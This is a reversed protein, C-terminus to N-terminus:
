PEQPSNDPEDNEQEDSSDDDSAGESADELTDYGPAESENLSAPEEGEQGTLIESSEGGELPLDGTGPDNGEIVPSEEEVDLIEVDAVIDGEQLRIARVGQTDRGLVSIADMRMKIILGIKSLIMLEQKSNVAAIAVAPGNKETIRINRVGKGGRATIRYEDPLTRKAHGRETITLLTIDEKLIVMGIVRDSGTVRIGRVGRTGRGCQRISSLKFRIAQGMRTGIMIDQDDSALNVAVLHDGEDLNIANVGTSRIRSFVSLKMKNITGKETAFIISREDEFTKVPIFATLKEGPQLQVLNIIAKGKSTKGAEPIEYIRLWHCRGLNTFVMLYSHADAAFLHEVFDEDRTKAGTVGRGGRGQARYEDAAVRKIYGAHSITVVMSEDPILDLYTVDDQVEVIQTRRDDGYKQAIDELGQCIISMRRERNALIEKLDRIREQLESYEKEIKDIELGTLTRLRMEVIAQTQKDSLSFREQLKTKAEETSQSGRIIAIVEDINNIAIRLGELIHARDEAKTLDFQTRRVIIEHRHDIYYHILERLTCVKPKRNVLALNIISFTDQLATYKYLQNLIVEAFADKKLEIVIRMGNRDSEDRLDSIGEIVKNRVLQAMKELLNSKNVQYPIESILIRQRGNKMEDIRCKGRVLVRSRGTLYAMRIGNRGQIIGGTPFDPGTVIEFLEDDTLHPNHIISVCAKVIERLNHPPMSSAMGVAIGTTGNVLLNPFAAPLVSPEEMSGDYNPTYDVTQKDLDELMFQSFRAMRAETYRMAAPSDGDVSGFNGQGDVLTYRMSFDQAMRVLTHYVATDGHPHYKGIVDGVIRASKKYPKGPFLNLNEMGFLVRRHVPKLGDRVDPLARSVIVSMAYTVYSKKMEDEILAPIVNTEVEEVNEEEKNEPDESM